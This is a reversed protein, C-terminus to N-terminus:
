HSSRLKQLSVNYVDVEDDGGASWVRVELQDGTPEVVDTRWPGWGSFLHEPPTSPLEFTTQVTTRGNTGPVSQRTLMTSTTANWVEVNASSSVALAINARYVGPTARWYAHDVVYGSRQTSAMHWDAQPGDRVTVGTSGPVTWAPIEPSHPPNLRLETTGPPVNWEFAWIGNSAVVLNVGPAQAFAAIDAYTGAVSALEIGQNPAFIVWVRHARVPVTVTTELLYYISERDAFSGLIGQSAIVEDNPGIKAHVSRLVAAAGPSVTLWRSAAHPIWVVAWAVANVTVGVFLIRALWRRTRGVSRGGILMGFLAVTGVAVLPVVAISQFGPYSFDVISTFQSEALILTIPVLVPVWVLGILGGPSLNAWLDIRNAWLAQAVRAPHALAGSLVNLSSDHEPVFGTASGTIILAYAHAPSGQTGHIVGLLLFWGVGLLAILGGPRLRSRGSLAASAGVAALYSAGLDGTSLGVLAWLWARKRGLFLNRATAVACLASFAEVHFDFSSAWLMWPDPVLLIIGLAVLAVPAATSRRRRALGAAIDCIWVFATAQMAFTAADQMWLLTVPHPWLSQVLAIPWVFFASHDRWFVHGVRGLTTSFPDLHGHAILYTAQAYTSFDSTLAYRSALVHSWWCLGLFQVGLLCLGVIRARRLAVPWLMRPPVVFAQANSWREWLSRPIRGFRRGNRTRPLRKVTGARPLTTSDPMASM